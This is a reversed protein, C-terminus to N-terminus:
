QETVTSQEAAAKQEAQRRDREQQLKKTKHENLWTQWGPALKKAEKATEAIAMIAAVRYRGTVVETVSVSPTVTDTPYFEIIDCMSAKSDGIFVTFCRDGTKWGDLETIVSRTSVFTNKKKKKAM